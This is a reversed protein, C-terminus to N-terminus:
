FELSSTPRFAFSSKRLAEPSLPKGSLLSGSVRLDHGSAFASASGVSGGLHGQFSANLRLCSCSNERPSPRSDQIHDLPSSPFLITALVHGSQSKVVAYPSRPQSVSSLPYPSAVELLSAPFATSVETAERPSGM